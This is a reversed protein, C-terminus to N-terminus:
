AGGAIQALAAFIDPHQFVFGARQAADPIARQSALLVESMEGFMMKLAFAPVPFIAPRHVAEALARTFERNTAPFPSTANFVGRVTSEKMLFAILAVLDNIHIWSMWQEGSGLRGGVGLRFPLLMRGLAGGEKGLVMGIRLRAVRVGLPEAAQAEEEWAKAVRGLFDDAAPASETLIEDGRSGYYGVASASILVQPPQARMAAVLARTGDVRSRLIKDRAAATWRQAVPEGALHVVANSGALAAPELAARLSVPRVNHGSSRLHESVARGIFGSAGTLAVNM